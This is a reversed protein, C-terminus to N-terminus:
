GAGPGKPLLVPVMGPGKNGKGGGGWVVGGGGWGVGGTVVLCDGRRRAFPVERGSLGLAESLAFFFM